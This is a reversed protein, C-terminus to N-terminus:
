LIQFKNSFFQVGCLIFTSTERSHHLYSKFSNSGSMELTSHIM